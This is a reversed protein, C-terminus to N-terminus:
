KRLAREDISLEPCAGTRENSPNARISSLIGVGLEVYKARTESESIAKAFTHTVVISVIGLIALSIERRLDEGLGLRRRITPLGIMAVLFVVLLLLLVLTVVAALCDLVRVLTHYDMKLRRIPLNTYATEIIGGSGSSRNVLVPHNAYIRTTLEADRKTRFIPAAGTKPNVRTFDSSTLALVRNSDELETLTHLFFACKATEFRRAEGGFVLACFKFRSDVDPFYSGGPNYRNEFDLLAALNVQSM